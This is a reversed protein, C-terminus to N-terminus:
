ISYRVFEKTEIAMTQMQALANASSAVTARPDGGVVAEGAANKVAPLTSSYSFAGSQNLVSLAQQKKTEGDHKGVIAKIAELHGTVRKLHEKVTKKEEVLAKLENNLATKKEKYHETQEILLRWSRSTPM